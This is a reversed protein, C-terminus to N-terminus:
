AHKLHCRLISPYTLQSNDCDRTLLNLEDRLERVLERTEESKFNYNEETDFFSRIVSAISHADPVSNKTLYFCKRTLIKESNTKLSTIESLAEITMNSNSNSLTSKMEAFESQMTEM